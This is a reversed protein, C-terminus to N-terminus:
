VLFCCISLIFRKEDTDTNSVLALPLGTRVSYKCSGERAAESNAALQYLM